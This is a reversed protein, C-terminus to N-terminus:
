LQRATFLTGVYAALRARAAPALRQFEVGVGRDAAFRIVAADIRIPPDGVHLVLAFPGARPVGGATELACGNLSIDTAVADIAGHPGVITVAIRIPLRDYDRRDVSLRTYRTGWQM